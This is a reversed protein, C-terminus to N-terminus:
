LVFVMDDLKRKKLIRYRRKSNSLRLKKKEDFEPLTVGSTSNSMDIPTGASHAAAGTSVDEMVPSSDIVILWRSAHAFRLRTKGNVIESSDGFEFSKSRYCYSNAFMGSYRNGIDITLEAIFGFDGNHRLELQVTKLDKFFERVTSEPIKDIKRVSMDVSKANTVSMGNITWSYGGMDLVLDINRGAINSVINKPLETTGNMNVKVTEGDVANWINDSIVEWGKKGSDDQMYPEKNVPASSITTGSPPFYPIVPSPTTGTPPIIESFIFGGCVTCYYTRVGTEYATPQKTVTGSDPTHLAEDAREGCACEHWHRTDSYKWETGFVHTHVEGTPPISVTRTVTGCVTCRYTMEGATTETPQITVAGGNESHPLLEGYEQGCVTCVAKATCTATGGTHTHTQPQIDGCRTCVGDVYNHGLAPITPIASIEATGNGDSFIKNCGSCTWYASNGAATCTADVAAHATLTHTHSPIDDDTFTITATGLVDGDLSKATLTVPGGVATGVIRCQNSELSNGSGTYVAAYAPDIDWYIQEIATYGELTFVQGNSLGTKVTAAAPTLTYTPTTGDTVTVNCTEVIVEVDSKIIKLTIVATGASRGEVTVTRVGNELASSATIAAIDADSTTENYMCDDGNTVTETIVATEGIPVTLTKPSITMTPTIGETEYCRTCVGNVYNHGLASGADAITETEDCRDCKATKTGDATCTADNNSVYNTFSHGKAAIVAGSKRYGCEACVMDYYKGDETCTAPRATSRDADMSHDEREKGVKGCVSCNKWHGSSPDDEDKVYTIGTTHVCKVTVELEASVTNTGDTATVTVTGEGAKVGQIDAIAGNQTISVIDAPDCVFTIVPNDLNEVTAACKIHTPTTDLDANLYNLTIKPESARCRTCVGNVYIHGLAPIVPIEDFEATSDENSFIKKCGKVSCTWYAENGDTTCTASVADHKELDHPVDVTFEATIDDAGSKKGTVKIKVMGIKVGTVTVVTGNATATAIADNYSKATYEYGDTNKGIITVTTTRGVNVNATEPDFTLTPAPTSDVVKYASSGGFATDSWTGSASVEINLEFEAASAAIATFTYTTVDGATSSTVKLGTAEQGDTDNVKNNLVPTYYDYGSGDSKPVKYKFSYKAAPPTNAANYSVTFSDGIKMSTNNFISFRFNDADIKESVYGVGTLTVSNIKLTKDILNTASNVTKIQFDVAGNDVKIPKETTVSNSGQSISVSEEAWWGNAEDSSHAIIIGSIDDSAKYNVTISAVSNVFAGPHNIAKGIQAQTLSYEKYDFKNEKDIYFFTDPNTFTHTGNATDASATFSTVDMTTIALVAATPMSTFLMLTMSLATMFSIIRKKM